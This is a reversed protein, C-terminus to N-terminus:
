QEKNGNVGKKLIEIIKKRDEDSMGAITNREDATIIREGKFVHGGGFFGGNKYHSQRSLNEFLFTGAQIAGLCGCMKILRELKEKDGTYTEKVKKLRKLREGFINVKDVTRM